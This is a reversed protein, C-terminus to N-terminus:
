RFRMEVRRAATVIGLHFPTLARRYVRLNDVAFREFDDQIGRGAM